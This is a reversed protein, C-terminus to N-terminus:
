QRRVTQEGELEAVLSSLSAGACHNTYYHSRGVCLGGSSQVSAMWILHFGKMGFNNSSNPRSNKRQNDPCLSEFVFRRMQVSISRECYLIVQKQCIGASFQSRASIIARVCRRPISRKVSQQLQRANIKQDNESM